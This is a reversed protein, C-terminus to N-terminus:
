NIMSELTYKRKTRNISSQVMRDMIQAKGNELDVYLVSKRMALYGRALNIM